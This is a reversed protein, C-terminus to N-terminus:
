SRRPTTPTAGDGHRGRGDEASVERPEAACPMARRESLIRQPDRATPSRIVVATESLRAARALRSTSNLSALRGRLPIRTSTCSCTDESVREVHTGPIRAIKEEQADMYAGAGAGIGAGIAAGALIEDAERKGTLIAAAAGAAAGIGAGKATKDRKTSRTTASPACGVLLTVLAAYSVV